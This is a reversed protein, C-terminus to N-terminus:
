WFELEYVFGRTWSGAEFCGRGAAYVADGRGVAFDEGAECMGRRGVGGQVEGHRRTVDHADGIREEGHLPRRDLVIIIGVTM